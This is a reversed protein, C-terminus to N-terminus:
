GMKFIRMKKKIKNKVKSSHHFVPIGNPSKIMRKKEDELM